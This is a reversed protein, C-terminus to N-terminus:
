RTRSAGGSSSTTMTQAASVYTKRMYTLGALRVGAGCLLVHERDLPVVMSEVRGVQKAMRFGTM